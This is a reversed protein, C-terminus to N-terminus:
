QKMHKDMFAEFEEDSMTDEDLYDIVTQKASSTKTTAADKRKNAMKKTSAQKAKKAKAATIAKKEADAKEKALQTSIEEEAKAKDLAKYYQGGAQIYYELDSKTGDSDLIKLRQAMPAVKDYVGSKVDEHLDALMQPKDAIVKRSKEDWAKEVVHYTLKYEQDGSIENVVEDIALQSENRGYDKPTYDVEETNLDLADINTKKLVNAIANKDGKLADIMMNLDDQSVKEEQIASIMKRYPAIEQMKKTYNIAKPALKVLDEESLELDLGNAKVKYSKAQVATETQKEDEDTSQGEEDETSTEDTTEPDEEETTEDTEEDTTQDSDPDTVDEETSDSQEPDVETIETEETEQEDEIDDELEETTDEETVETTDEVINDEENNTTDESGAEAAMETMSSNMFAEFEEDNMSDTDINELEEM